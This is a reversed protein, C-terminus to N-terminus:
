AKAAFAMWGPCWDANKAAATALATKQDKLKASVKGDATKKGVLEALMANVSARDRMLDFFTADPTWHERTKIKAHVGFADIVTSGPALTEAMVLAGIRVVDADKLKLLRQFVRATTDANHLRGAVHIVEGEDDVGEGDGDESKFASALLARVKKVEAEFAAQAPSAALSESVAKNDARQADPRVTWNGSAAVAHAIMLRLADAPRAILALRVAAHRHLNLYNQMTNTIPSRPAAEAKGNTSAKRGKTEAQRAERQTLYGEYFRVEGTHTPEIYVRGGEKKSAKVFDWQPFQKGRELVVVESWKAALYADRRAAIAEDQATWFADASAFYREKSFLDGVIENKFPALDFLAYDARIATGGFLWHKLDSATPADNDDWLKLWDRQQSKTAMTLIQLDGVNLEENRFLDRIRPLLNAIALRRIVDKPDVGLTKGIEAPTRGLRILGAYTEYQTLEDVDERAVNEILSLEMAAADDLGERVDCEIPPFKGTENEIVRAAYYRRRGALIELGDNNPRVILPTLIGKERVTPLINAAIVAMRRFSPVKKEARMNLRSVHLDKLPVLQTQM